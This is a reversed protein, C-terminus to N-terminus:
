QIACSLRTCLPICAKVDYPTIRGDGDADRPDGPQADQGRGRSILRLDLRDIDGDGDVDCVAGPPGGAPVITLDSLVPSEGGPSATLTAKVQLYRGTLGLPSGNTVPQYPLLPLQTSDDAARAEVVISGGTPVSGQPEENWRISDWEAGATGGDEIVVWFGTHVTGTRFGIGSADSYTYPYRGVPLTGLFAGDTGRFKTVNHRDLNVVWLNGAADPILGRTESTGSPNSAAWALSYTDSGPDYDFKYITSQGSYVDGAGDVGVGFSRTFVPAPQRFTNTAPDFEIFSRSTGFDALYVKGNGLAIGYNRGPHSRSSKGVPVSTDLEGLRNSLNASWLTGGSDVACGYPNVDISVPGALVTGDDADLKYFQRSNYLGLWINGDTGLCLARGVGGGPGVHVAWAVREDKLEEPDLRGNGNDDTLEIMENPAIQCDGNLDRSTDIVGNGNRDIGGEALIKMVLAPRGDFHRNAVYVNGDADVATRSPAPGQWAGHSSTGFWTHYRATECGGSPIFTSPIDTDIRSVTDEGANAVWLTPFTTAVTNLQLQHSGPPDHNVGNMTGQDFDADLTYTDAAAPPPWAALILAAAAPALIARANM